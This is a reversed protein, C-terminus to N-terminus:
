LAKNMFLLWYLEPVFNGQRQQRHYWPSGCGWCYQRQLPFFHRPKVNAMLVLIPYPLCSHRWAWNKCYSSSPQRKATLISILVLGTRQWWGVWPDLNVQTARRLQLRQLAVSESFWRHSGCVVWPIMLPRAGASCPAALIRMEDMWYRAM